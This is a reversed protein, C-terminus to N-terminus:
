LADIAATLDRDQAVLRATKDPHAMMSRRVRSRMWELYRRPDRPVSPSRSPIQADFHQYVSGIMKLLQTRATGGISQNLEEVLATVYGARTSLGAAVVPPLPEFERPQPGRKGM